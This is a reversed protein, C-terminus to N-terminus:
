ATATRRLGLCEEEIERSTPNKNSLVLRASVLFIDRSVSFNAADVWQIVHANLEPKQRWYLKCGSKGSSYRIFENWFARIAAEPTFFFGDPRTDTSTASPPLTIFPENTPAFSTVYPGRPIHILEMATILGAVTRPVPMNLLSM